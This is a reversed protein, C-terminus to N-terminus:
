KGDIALEYSGPGTVEFSLPEWTRTSRRYYKAAMPVTGEYGSPVRLAVRNRSDVTAASPCLADDTNARAYAVPDIPFAFATTMKPEVMRVDPDAAVRASDIDVEWVDYPRALELPADFTPAGDRSSIDAEFQFSEGGPSNVTARLVAPYPRDDDPSTFGEYFNGLLFTDGGELPRWLVESLQGNAHSLQLSVSDLRAWRGDTAVVQDSIQCKVMERKLEPFAVEGPETWCQVWPASPVLRAAAEDCGECDELLGPDADCGVALALLLLHNKM